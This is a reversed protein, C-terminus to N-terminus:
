RGQARTVFLRAKKPIPQPYVKGRRALARAAQRKLSERTDRSDAGVDPDGCRGTTPDPLRSAGCGSQHQGAQFVAHVRMGQGCSTRGERLGADRSTGAPRVGGAEVGADPHCRRGRSRQRPPTRRVPPVCAGGRDGGGQGWAMGDPGMACPPHASPSWGRGKGGRRSERSAKRM